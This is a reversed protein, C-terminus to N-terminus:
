TVSWIIGFLLSFLTLVACLFFITPKHYSQEFHIGWGTVEEQPTAKLLGYHGLRKPLQAFITEQEPEVHDPYSFYHTLRNSGIAHATRPRVKPAPCCQYETGIRDEPPLCVCFPHRAMSMEKMWVFFYTFVEHILKEMTQSNTLTQRRMTRLCNQGPCLLIPQSCMEEVLSSDQSRLSNYSLKAFLRGRTALRNESLIARCSRKLNRCLV